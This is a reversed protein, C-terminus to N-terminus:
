FQLHLAIQLIRPAVNNATTIQGFQPSNINTNPNDFNTHNFVNFADLRLEATFKEAFIFHKALTVDTNIVGPGRLSNRGLSGETLQGILAAPNSQALNDLNLLRSNSLANPNFYYNGTNGNITQNTRPNYIGVSQAVLDAHVLGADGDGAPGPDTNTTNLGAFVDIPFGTHWTVIPYLSWGRTILKPGRQWMRDFPLDWGGSFVLNNRVDTDGSAYFEHENYYPVASNRERFGSANDLEHGWTYALTYFASGLRTEGTRKTLNVTMSNYNANSVNKFQYLNGYV